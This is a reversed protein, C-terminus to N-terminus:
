RIDELIKMPPVLLLEPNEFNDRMIKAASAFYFGDCIREDINVIYDIVREVKMNGKRDYEVATRKAGFALFVPVSGFNYLHHTVARINLSAMNTVFMSGHFPSAEILASPLLGFYYVLKLFWIAFKKMIGPMCNIIISAVADTNTPANFAKELTDNVTAYVDYLTDSPKFHFKVTTNPENLKMKRKIDMNVVIDNRAYIKQGRIFRNIAPRQSITRVYSALIIHLVGIGDYGQSRLTRILEEAKEVKLSGEFHNQCEGREVMIYPIISAFPDLTKLRRGEKIRKSM